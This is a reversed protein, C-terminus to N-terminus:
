KMQGKLLHCCTLGLKFNWSILYSLVLTVCSILSHHSATAGLIWKGEKDKFLLFWIKDLTDHYWSFDM